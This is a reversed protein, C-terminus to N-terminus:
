YQEAEEIDIDPITNDLVGQVGEETDLWQSVKDIAHEESNAMVDVEFDYVIKGRVQFERM